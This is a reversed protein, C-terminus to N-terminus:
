RVPDGRPVAAGTSEQGPQSSRHWSREPQAGPGARGTRGGDSPRGCGPAAERSGPPGRGAVTARGVTENPPRSCSGLATRLCPKYDATEMMERCASKVAARDGGKWPVKGSSGLGRISTRPVGFALAVHAVRAFTARSW